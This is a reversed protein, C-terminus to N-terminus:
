FKGLCLNAGVFSLLYNRLLRLELKEVSEIKSVFRLAGIIYPRYIGKTYLRSSLSEGYIDRQSVIKNFSM